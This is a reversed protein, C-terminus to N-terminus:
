PSNGMIQRLEILSQQSITILGRYPRDLDLIILMLLVILLSLMVVGLVSQGGGLGSRYGFMGMALLSTAFLLYLMGGPVENLRAADRRGQADMADSLSQVFLGITISHPDRAAAAVAQSWM